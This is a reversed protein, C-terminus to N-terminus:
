RAGKSQTALYSELRDLTLSWGIPAGRTADSEFSFKQHVTMKTKREHEEFKVKTWVEHEKVEHIFGKWVLRSRAEIEVYEGESAYERGDPARMVYRFAGGPRFDMECVPLTFGAPGFWKMLHEPVTWVRFVLERPADFERTMVLEPKKAEAGIGKESM